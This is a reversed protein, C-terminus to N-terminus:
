FTEDYIIDLLHKCDNVVFPKSFPSLNCSPTIHIEM